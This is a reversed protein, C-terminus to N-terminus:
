LTLLRFTLLSFIVTSYYGIRKLFIISVLLYKFRRPQIKSFISSYCDASVMLQYRCQLASPNKSYELTKKIEM